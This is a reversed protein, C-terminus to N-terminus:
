PFYSPTTKARSSVCGLPSVRREKERARERARARARASERERDSEGARASERQRARASERERSLGPERGKAREKAKEKKRARERDREKEKEKERVRERPSLAALDAMSKDTFTDVSKGRSTPPVSAVLCAPPTTTWAYSTHQNQYFCKDCSLPPVHLRASTPPAHSPPTPFGSRDM